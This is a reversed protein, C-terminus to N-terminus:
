VGQPLAWLKLNDKNKEWENKFLALAVVDQSQGDKVCHNKYLAEQVFGFKKHLAVVLENFLMVESCLKSINRRDFIHELALFWMAKGSGKPADAEGLYFGWSCLGRADIDYFGILGIPKGQYEFIHYDMTNDSIAKEIWKKHEEWAIEHDTYMFKKVRDSGRWRFVLEADLSTLPRLKYNM